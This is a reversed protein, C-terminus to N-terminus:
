VRGQAIQKYYFHDKEFDDYKNRLYEMLDNLDNFKQNAKIVKSDADAMTNREGQAGTLDRYALARQSKIDHKADLVSASLGFLLDSVLNRLNLYHYALKESEIIADGSMGLEQPSKLQGRAM